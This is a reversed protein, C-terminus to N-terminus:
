EEEEEDYYSDIKIGTCRECNCPPRYIREISDAYRDYDIEDWNKGGVFPGEIEFALGRLVKLVEKKEESM